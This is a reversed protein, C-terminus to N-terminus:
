LIICDLHLPVFSFLPYFDKEDSDCSIFILAFFFSGLFAWIIDLADLNNLMILLFELSVCGGRFSTWKKGVHTSTRVRLKSRNFYETPCKNM